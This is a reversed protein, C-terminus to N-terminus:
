VNGKKCGRAFGANYALNLAKIIDENKATEYLCMLEAATIQEKENMKEVGIQVDNYFNKM